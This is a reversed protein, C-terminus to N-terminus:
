WKNMLVLLHLHSVSIGWIQGILVIDFLFDFLISSLILKLMWNMLEIETMEIEKALNIKKTKKQSDM